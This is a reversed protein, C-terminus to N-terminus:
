TSKNKYVDNLIENFKELRLDNLYNENLILQSPNIIQIKPREKYAPINEIKRLFVVNDSGIVRQTFINLLFITISTKSMSYIQTHFLNKLGNLFKLKKSTGYNYLYYRYPLFGNKKLALLYKTMTQFHHGFHEDKQFFSKLQSIISTTPELMFFIGNIKLVRNIEMFFSRYDQIHHVFEKCFIVDVSNNPFPLITADCVIHKGIDLNYHKWFLGSYLSNPDLECRYTDFGNESLMKSMPAGGSAIDIAIPNIKNFIDHKLISICQFAVKFSPYAYDYHKQIEDLNTQYDRETSIVEEIENKRTKDYGMFILGKSVPYVIKCNDCVIKDVKFTLKGLCQQCRLTDLIEKRM